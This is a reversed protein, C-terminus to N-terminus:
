EAGELDSLAMALLVPFLQIPVIANGLASIQAKWNKGKPALRPPERDYQAEGMLAPHRQGRIVPAALGNFLGGVGSEFRGNAAASGAGDCRPLAERHPSQPQEFGAAGNGEMQLRAAHALTGVAGNCDCPRRRSTADHLAGSELGARWYPREPTADAMVEGAESDSNGTLRRGNRGANCGCLGARADCGINESDAMACLRSEEEAHHDGAIFQAGEYQPERGTCSPRAHQAHAMVFCRMREHSAGVACAPIEVSGVEYGENELDHRVRPLGDDSGAFGSVNEICVWRPEVARIIALTAPWLDRGDAAGMQKGAGSFPQCPIGGFVADVGIGAGILETAVHNIDGLQPVDPWKRKLEGVCYPEIESFAACHYFEFSLAENVMAAAHSFGGLGACLELFKM